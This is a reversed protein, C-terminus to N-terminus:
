SVGTGNIFWTDTGVKMLTAMGYTGLVRNAATSNGAMYLTVGSAANVLINGTGEMVISIATGTSFSVSSNNPITLTFNGSSTSHYHKGSDTLALTTNSASLQPINLYGISYGNTNGIINGSITINNSFLNGFYNTTNGLHMTKNGYPVLTESSHVFRFKENAALFGGTAFVLDKTTGTSDTAFVLNGGLASGNVAGSFIYGDNPKTITYNADNFTSGTFGLDVWGHDDTDGPYNDGYAIWDASGSASSNLIAAQVYATGTEKAIIVPKTLSGQGESDQGAFLTGQAYVNHTAHMNNGHINAQSAIGGAVRLAGSTTNTSPTTNAITVIGTSGIGTNGNVTLGVLIGTSTINSQTGEIINGAYAAYNANAVTGSINGAPINTLTSGNGIIYNGTINGTVNLSVLTGVSTINPQAQTTVTGAFTATGANTANTATSASGVTGTVNAGNLNTLNAGSGEFLTATGTGNITLGSLTGVSTINPQANTTVTAATGATTASTVNGAYAAYNANAVTGNINAAPIHTLGAGNAAVLSFTAVNGAINSTNTPLYAAVNSNGYGSGPLSWPSGNAYLLSDTKLAGTTVNGLVYLSDTDKNYTFGSDGALRDGLNFQVETTDGGASAQNIYNNVIETTATIYINGNSVAPIGQTNQPYISSLGSDSGANVITQPPTTAM